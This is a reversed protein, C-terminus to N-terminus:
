PKRELPWPLTTAPFREPRIFPGGYAGVSSRRWDDQQFDHSGSFYWLAGARQKGNQRGSDNVPWARATYVIARSIGLDQRNDRLWGFARIGSCSRWSLLDDARTYQRTSHLSFHLLWRNIHSTVPSDAILSFATNISTHREM